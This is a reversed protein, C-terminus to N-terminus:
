SDFIDPQLITTFKSILGIQAMAFLFHSGPGWMNFFVFSAASHRQNREERMEVSGKMVTQFLAKM